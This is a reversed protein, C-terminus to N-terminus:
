GPQPPLAYSVPSCPEQETFVRSPKRRGGRGVNSTVSQSMLAAYEESTLRFAFDAPFRAANRKVAQNLATTTVKYLAALDSDLLVRQGRITRISLAIHDARVADNAM